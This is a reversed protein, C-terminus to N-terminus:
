ATGRRHPYDVPPLGSNSIRIRRGRASAIWSRRADKTTKDIPILDDDKTDFKSLYATAEPLRKIVGGVPQYQDIWGGKVLLYLNDVKIRYLYSISLRVPKGSYRISDLLSRLQEFNLYSLDLAVLILGALIGAAIDNLPHPARWSALVSILITAAYVTPRLLGKMAVRRTIQPSLSEKPSVDLTETQRAEQIIM